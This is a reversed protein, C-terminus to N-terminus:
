STNNANINRRRSLAEDTRDDVAKHLYVQHSRRSRARRM